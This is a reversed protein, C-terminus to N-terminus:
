AAWSAVSTLHWEFRQSSDSHHSAKLMFVSCKQTQIWRDQFRSKHRFLFRLSSLKKFKSSVRACEKMFENINIEYLNTLISEFVHDTFHAFSNWIFVYTREFFMLSLFDTKTVGFRSRFFITQFDYVIKWIINLSLFIIETDDFSNRFLNTLVDFFTSIEYFCRLFLFHKLFSVFLSYSILVVILSFM